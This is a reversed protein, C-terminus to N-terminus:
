ILLDVEWDDTCPRIQEKDLARVKKKPSVSRPPNDSERFFVFGPQKARFSSSQEPTSM